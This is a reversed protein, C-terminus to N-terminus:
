FTTGVEAPGENLVRFVVSGESVEGLSTVGEQSEFNRGTVFIGLFYEIEPFCSKQGVSSALLVSSFHFFWSPFLTLSCLFISPKFLGL